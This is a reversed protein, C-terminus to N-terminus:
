PYNPPQAAERRSNQSKRAKAGECVNACACMRVQYPYDVAGLGGATSARQRSTHERGMEEMGTHLLPNLPNRKLAPSRGHPLFLTLLTHLMSTVM